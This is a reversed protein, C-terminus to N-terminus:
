RLGDSWEVVLPASPAGFDSYRVWVPRVRFHIIGDWKLREFGDPFSRLYIGRVLEREAGMPEEVPGEIQVTRDGEWVVIAARADRRLNHAKHTDSLTDFIADGEDSFALGVVAAQPQGSASVTAVTGYRQRQLFAILQETQM